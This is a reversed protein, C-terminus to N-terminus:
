WRRGLDGRLQEVLQQDAVVTAGAADDLHFGVGATIIRRRV